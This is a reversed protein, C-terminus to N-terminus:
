ENQKPNYVNGGLGTSGAIYLGNDNKNELGEIIDYAHAIINYIKYAPFLCEKVITDGKSIEILANGKPEKLYTAKFRYEKINKDYAVQQTRFARCRGM